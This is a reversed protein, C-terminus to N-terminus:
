VVIGRIANDSILENMSHLDRHEYTRHNAAAQPDKKQKGRNPFSTRVSSPRGGGGKKHTDIM